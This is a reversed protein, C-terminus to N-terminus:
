SHWPLLLFPVLSLSLLFWVQGRFKPKETKEETLADIREILRNQLSEGDLAACCSTAFPVGSISNVNQAVQLLSEALVLSDVQRAAHSDARLERLFVLESWLQSTNPLWASLSRIWGLWFFWFTDRYVRHASEHALVAALHEEDLLERLGRTIVLESEWLGVRASYPFDLDMLRAPQGDIIEVPYSSLQRRTRDAQFYRRILCLVAFVIWAIAVAYSLRNEHYGFMQGGYGMCIVAIATM